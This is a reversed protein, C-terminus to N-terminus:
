PDLLPRDTRLHIRVSAPNAHYLWRRQTVGNTVNVFKEPNMEYFDSLSDHKLIDSHLKAVGNVKHSGYIALHAMRVQGNEIISMRRVREEDNPFRSASRNAFIKM